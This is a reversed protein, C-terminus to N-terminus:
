GDIAERCTMCCSIHIQYEAKADEFPQYGRKFEEAVHVWKWYLANAVPCAATPHSFQSMVKLRTEGFMGDKM